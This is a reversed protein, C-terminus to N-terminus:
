KSASVEVETSDSIHAQPVRIDAQDRLAQVWTTILDQMQQERLIERIKGSVQELPVDQAGAKRLEPLFQERYYTAVARQDIRIGARFRVDLLREIEIQQQLRVKIEQESIGARQLLNKWKAEDDDALQKRVDSLRTEVDQATVPKLFYGRMQDRLLDQDVLRNFVERQESPSYSEPSRGALLAECRWTEEWESQLIPTNNVVAIVRDVIEQAGATVAGLVILAVSIIWFRRM